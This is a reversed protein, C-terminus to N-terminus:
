THFWQWFYSRTKQYNLNRDLCQPLSIMLLNSPFVIWMCLFLWNTATNCFFRLKLFSKTSHIMLFRKKLSTQYGKQWHSNNGASTVKKFFQQSIGFKGIEANWFWRWVLDLKCIKIRWLWNMFDMEFHSVRYFLFLILLFIPKM